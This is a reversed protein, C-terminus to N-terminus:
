AAEVEALPLEGMKPMIKIAWKLIEVIMKMKKFLIASLCPKIGERCEHEM